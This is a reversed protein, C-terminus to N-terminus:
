TRFLGLVYILLIDTVSFKLISSLSKEQSKSERATWEEPFHSQRHQPVCLLPLVGGTWTPRPQGPKHSSSRTRNDTMHTMM